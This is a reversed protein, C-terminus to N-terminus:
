GNDRRRYGAYGLLLLAAIAIALGINNAHQRLFGLTFVGAPGDVAPRVPPVEVKVPALPNVGAEAAQALTAYTQLPQGAAPGPGAPAQVASTDTTQPGLSPPIPVGGGILPMGQASAGEAPVGTAALAPATTRMPLETVVGAHDATPLPTNLQFSREGDQAFSAGGLTLLITFIITRM